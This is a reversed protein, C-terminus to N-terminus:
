KRDRGAFRRKRGEVHFCATRCSPQSWAVKRAFRWCISPLCSTQRKGQPRVGVGGSVSQFSWERAHTTRALHRTQSSGTLANWNEVKGTCLTSCLTKFSFTLEPYDM